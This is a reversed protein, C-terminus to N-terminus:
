LIHCTVFANHSILLESKTVRGHNENVNCSTKKWAGRMVTRYSGGDKHERSAWRGGGKTARMADKNSESELALDHCIGAVQKHTPRQPGDKNGSYEEETESDM